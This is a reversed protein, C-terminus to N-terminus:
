ADIIKKSFKIKKTRKRIIVPESQEGADKM